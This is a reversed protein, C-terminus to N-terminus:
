YLEQFLTGILIVKLNNNCHLHKEIELTEFKFEYLFLNTKNMLSDLDKLLSTTHTTAKEQFGTIFFQQPVIEGGHITKFTISFSRM